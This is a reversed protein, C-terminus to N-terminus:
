DTVTIQRPKKDHAKPLRLTLMGQEMHATIKDTDVAPDLDFVRSYDARSTEAHLRRGSTPTVKSGTFVLEGNKVTIQVGEKSVGPMEAELTYGEADESISVAPATYLIRQAPAPALDAPTCQQSTTTTM